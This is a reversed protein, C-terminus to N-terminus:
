EDNFIGKAFDTLLHKFEEFPIYIVIQGAAYPGIEYPNYTFGLCKQTLFFNDTAPIRNTFLGYDTLTQSAPIKNMRRFNKELIPSLAATDLIVDQLQLRKENRMDIVYHSTGFMGHAGGMYDYGDAAFVLLNKSVYYMLLKSQSERSYMYTADKYDAPTVDAHEKKYDTFFRNRSELFYQGATKDICNPWILKNVPSNNTYWIGSQYYTAQPSAKDAPNLKEKKETYVFGAGPEFNREDATLATAKGNVIFSGTVKKGAFKLQWKEMKNSDAPSGTLLISSTKQNQGSIRYPQQTHMYYVYADYDYGAKHLLMTFATKGITGSYSKFWSPNNQSFVQLGTTLTIFLLLRKM